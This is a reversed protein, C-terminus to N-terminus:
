GGYLKQQQVPFSDPADQNSTFFHPIKGDAEESQNIQLRSIGHNIAEQRIQDTESLEKLSYVIMISYQQLPVNNDIAYSFLVEGDRALAYNIMNILAKRMPSVPTKRAMRVIFALHACQLYSVRSLLVDAIGALSGEANIEYAAKARSFAYRCAAIKSQPIKMAEDFPVFDEYFKDLRKFDEAYDLRRVTYNVWALTNREPEAPSAMGAAAQAIMGGSVSGSAAKESLSRVIDSPTALTKDNKGLSEPQTPQQELEGAKKEKESIMNEERYSLIDMVIEPSLVRVDKQPCRVAQILMRALFDSPKERYPFALMDSRFSEDIALHDSQLLQYLCRAGAIKEYLGSRNIREAIKEEGQAILASGKARAIARRGRAYHNFTETNKPNSQENPNTNLREDNILLSIDEYQSLHSNDVYVAAFFVAFSYPIRWDAM